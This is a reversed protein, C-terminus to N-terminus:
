IVQVKSQLMMQRYSGSKQGKLKLLICCKLHGMETNSLLILFTDLSLLILFRNNNIKGYILLLVFRIIRLKVKWVGLRKRGKTTFYARRMFQTQNAWNHKTSYSFPIKSVFWKLGLRLKVFSRVWASLSSALSSTLRWASIWLSLLAPFEPKRVRLDSVRLVVGLQILHQM